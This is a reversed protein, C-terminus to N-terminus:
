CSLWFITIDMMQGDIWLWLLKSRSLIRLIVGTGLYAVEFGSYEYFSIIMNKVQIPLNENFMVFIGLESKILLFLKCNRINEVSLLIVHKMQLDVPFVEKVQSFAFEFFKSIEYRGCWVFLVSTLEVGSFGCISWISFNPCEGQDWWVFNKIINM